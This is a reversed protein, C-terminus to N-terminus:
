SHHQLSRIEEVMYLPVERLLGESNFFVEMILAFIKTGVPTVLANKVESVPFGRYQLLVRCFIKPRETTSLNWQIPVTNKVKLDHFGIFYQCRVIFICCYDLHWVM